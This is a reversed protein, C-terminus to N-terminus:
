LIICFVWKKSNSSESSNKGVCLDTVPFKNCDLQDPWQFGFKKMLSECGNKASLCLERCPQIPKELVTCVPAYVTCLFLRIDESCKVKILPNFQAIAPGAESQTTHGLLNPFVTQNYDLNKCMPITIHECKRTTSFGNMSSISTSSLRQDASLCGFLFLILIHRHM